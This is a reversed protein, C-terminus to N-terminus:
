APRIRVHLSASEPRFYNSSALPTPTTKDFFPSIRKGAYEPLLDEHFHESPIRHGSESEGNGDARMGPKMPM